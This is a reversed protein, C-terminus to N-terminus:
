IKIVQGPYILDPNAIKNKKALEQYTTGYKEAIKSLTDGAKVIYVRDKGSANLKIVQGPYILNPNEINNIKALEQYTTGFKAAINSLTDGPKVIYVDDKNEKPKEKPEEKPKEIETYLYNMDTRGNIGDVKGDSSYQWIEYKGSYECKSYYQAVWIPYTDRTEKNIKGELWSLNAYIGVKYGAAKIGECYTKIINNLLEKSVSGSTNGDEVDYWIGLSPKRGKILRLTHKIESKAKEISDAYSMLYIGYPIGLRECEKVNREYYADDQSEFDMGFGCRIIAFEIGSKKVQDWDINEQWESVDIGKKM